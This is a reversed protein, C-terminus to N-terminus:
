ALFHSLKIVQRWERRNLNVVAASLDFGIAAMDSDRAVFARKCSFHLSRNNVRQRKRSYVAARISVAFDIKEQL